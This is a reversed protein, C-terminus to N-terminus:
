LLWRDMETALRDVVVVTAPTRGRDETGLIDTDEALGTIPQSTDHSLSKHTQKLKLVKENKKRKKILKERQSTYRIVVETADIM